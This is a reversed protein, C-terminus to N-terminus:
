QKNAKKKKVKMGPFSPQERENIYSSAVEVFWDKLTSGDIALTNYLRRKLNPDLEIVVRGSGGRPM